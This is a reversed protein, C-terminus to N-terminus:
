QEGDSKSHCGEIRDLIVTRAHAIGYSTKRCRSGIFRNPLNAALTGADRSEM